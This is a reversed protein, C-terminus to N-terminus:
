PSNCSSPQHKSEMKAHLRSSWFVVGTCRCIISFAVPCIGLRKYCRKSTSMPILVELSFPNLLFSFPLRCIYNQVDVLWAMAQQFAKTTANRLPFRHSALFFLSYRVIYIYITIIITEVMEPWYLCWFYERTKKNSSSRRDLEILHENWTMRTWCCGLYLTQM